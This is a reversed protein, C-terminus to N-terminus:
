QVVVITGRKTLSKTFGSAEIYYVYVGSQVEGGTSKSAGNWAKDAKDTEFVLQGWRNFVQMKFKNINRTTIALVDNNNDGNPSFANPLYVVPEDPECVDIFTSETFTCGSPDTITLTVSKLGISNYVFFPFYNTASLGEDGVWIYTFDSTDRGFPLEITFDATDGVCTSDAFNFTFVPNDYIEVNVRDIGTCGDADTVKLRLNYIGIAPFTYSGVDGNLFIPTPSAANTTDLLEYTYPHRGTFTTSDSLIASPNGICVSEVTFNIELGPEVTLIGTETDQCGNADIIQLTIVHQGEQNIFPYSPVSDNLTTGNTPPIPGKDSLWIYQVPAKAFKLKTRLFTPVGKCTSITDIDIEPKTVIAAGTFSRTCGFRDTVTLGIAFTTETAYPHQVTNNGIVLIANGDGFDWSYTAPQQLGIDLTDAVFTTSKGICVTDAIIVMDPVGVVTVTDLFTTDCGLNDRVLLSYAYKGPTKFPFNAGGSSFDNSTFGGDGSWVYIYPPKGGTVTATFTSPTNACVTDVVLAAIIPTFEVTDVTSISACSFPNDELQVEYIATDGCVAKRDTYTEIANTSVAPPNPLETRLGDVTRFIRYNSSSTALKNDRFKNWSLKVFPGNQIVSTLKMPRVYVPPENYESCSNLARIYYVMTNSGSLNNNLDIYSTQNIIAPNVPGGPITVAPSNSAINAALIADTAGKYIEYGRFTRKDGTLTDWTLTVDRQNPAVAVCHVVPDKVFDPVTLTVSFSRIDRGPSICYDDKATVVFNYIISETGGCNDVKKLNECSTPWYFYFDSTPNTLTPQINYGSGITDIPGNNVENTIFVPQSAPTIAGINQDKNLIACPPYPCLTLSKNELGMGIGNVYGKIGQLSPVNSVNSDGISIKFLLTDGAVITTNYSKKNNFVPDIRPQVNRTLPNPNPDQLVQILVDRYIESVKQGCKRSTVKIVSLFKGSFTPEFSVSGTVPDPSPLNVRPLPRLLNYGLEFQLTDNPGSGLPYDFSYSLEDLDKDISNSSYVFERGFQYTVTNPPESFDPSNDYCISLDNGLPNANSIYRFMKTRLTLDGGANIFNLIDSTRCCDPVAWITYGNPPPVPVGALDIPATIFTYRSISGPTGDNGTAINNCTIRNTTSSCSPSVDTISVIRGVIKGIGPFDHQILITDEQFLLIGECDRYVNVKFIYKGNGDCKWTIEGGAVHTAYSNKIFTTSFLLFIFAFRLFFKM